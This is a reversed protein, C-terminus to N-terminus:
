KIIRKSNNHAVLALVYKYADKCSEKSYVQAHEEDSVPLAAMIDTERKTFTFGTHVDQLKVSTVGGEQIPYQLVRTVHVANNQHMVLVHIKGTEM